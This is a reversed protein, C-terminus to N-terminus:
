ASVQSLLLCLIPIAFFITLPSLFLNSKTIGTVGWDVSDWDICINMTKFKKKFRKSKKDPNGQESAARVTRAQQQAGGNSFHRDPTWRATVSNEIPEDNM